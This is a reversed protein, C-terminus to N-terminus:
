CYLSNYLQKRNYEQQKMNESNNNELFKVLGKELDDLNIKKIDCEIKKKGFMRKSHAIKCKSLLVEIDRGYYKFYECNDIFWKENVNDDMQWKCKSIMNKFINYLDHGDYKDIHYRWTFRSQLGENYKFFCDNLEKEYGAVIVMLDKRHNSLSECLTDICEKSFSDKRENNGLSYAEDIFLVGGLASDIVDTTKLATQGLYGGILDSRTVKKFVDKKLVGIKSFIKGIIKALETKGTGPPGYIVTHMFDSSNHHFDQIFYLIQDIINTKIGNLAVMNDLKVLHKYINHLGKLNINYAVNHELPNKHILDILDSVSNIENEIIVDKHIFLDSEFNLQPVTTKKFSFNNYNIASDDKVKNPGNYLLEYQCDEYVNNIDKILKNITKKDSETNNTTNNNTNNNTTNDIDSKNKCIIDLQKIFSKSKRKKNNSFNNSNMNYYIPFSTM